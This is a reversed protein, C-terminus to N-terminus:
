TALAWSQDSRRPRKYHRWAVRSSRMLRCCGLFLCPVSALHPSLLVDLPLAPRAHNQRRPTTRQVLLRITGDDSNGVGAILPALIKPEKPQGLRGSVNEPRVGFRHHTRVHVM